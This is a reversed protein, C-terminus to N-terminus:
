FLKFLDNANAYIVLAILILMGVMQARILVEDKVKRGTIMEWLVFLLHGGDLGPIPIINMFAFIISLLACIQWFTFWDWHAPFLKGMSVLGGLSSAGEPTFVYKMDQAYGSLTGIGKHWGVVFSQPLSYRVQQVEYISQLPRLMVGVLGTTDPRIALQVTDEGRLWESSIWEGAHTYFYRRGSALHPMPISDLALLKDGRLVGAEAAASGAVVSDAIFPVQMTMLGENGRLIRQMMDDPIAIDILEGDRQVTVVKAEIVARMFDPRLIDQEKGDISWIIDGDHFGVEQAAPSFVMGATVSRSSMEVDGWHYSIGAYILLALVFNFLVGGILIFFRQWAPKSRFEDGRMPEKVQETDLSEDIMGHIKCYGGLPLWGIGYETDSGKPRYRWLAKGKVDFFLYFKDVRVGFLRAFLFHGLEHIFVLLSLALLLQGIRMLTSMLAVTDIGM